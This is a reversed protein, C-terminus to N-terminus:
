IRVMHIDEANMRGFVLNDGKDSIIRIKDEIENMIPIISERNDAVGLVRVSIQALLGRMSESIEEGEGHAIVIDLVGDLNKVDNIGMIKKIHGPASLISVNYPYLGNFYPEALNKDFISRKDNSVAYDIMMELPNYKCCREFLKYELSGTLRYGLDYVYCIGDEEKCQMFMMGNQIGVDKFMRKANPAVTEIYKDTLISPFTYGVPLPICGEQFGNVHRNGIGSLYYVGDVFLWFVTAEKGDMYREVVVEDKKSKERAEQYARECEIRDKCITVGRSGSNDSPKVVVPFELGKLDGANVSDSYDEVVPIGYEKLLKKYEKKNTFIEFQKHTGYCPKGTKECIEAYCPLLMDNFGTLIGDYGESRILNVVADVDTCSVMHRTDALRKAPSDEPKNYDTVGTFIKMKRAQRVIECSIQTGGLILLKKM